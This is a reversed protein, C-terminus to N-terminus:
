FTIVAIGKPVFNEELMENKLIINNYNQCNFYRSYRDRELYIFMKLKRVDTLFCQSYNKFLISLQLIDIYICIYVIVKNTAVAENDKDDDKNIKSCALLRFYSGVLWIILNGIM